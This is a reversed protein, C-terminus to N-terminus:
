VQGNDNERTAPLSFYFSAGENLRGVAWVRGNHRTVVRQVIALGVGTGPFDGSSHLRQFVGFLKHHYKMDFGVGNDEVCYECERGAATQYNRGTIRVRPTERRSSYKIANGVLNVWVQRLLNRDGSVPPLPGFEVGLVAPDKGPFLGALADRVLLDMDVPAASVPQQGLRSFALLDDILQAMQAANERVVGLMRKGEADIREAYDEELMRSFGDIARLPSRLDHSVSYSFSELERNTVELQATRRRLEETLKREEAEARKRETIDESIGLLYRPRGTEDVIPLKKTHLLRAGKDRTMVSEEPIDVVVGNALVERDRATFAEAEGTPFFDYDNCGILQGRPYGLLEEGARNFRVFRLDAADKVFIMDPINEIVSDLFLNSERLLQEARKRGTIDFLTSRSIIRDGGSNRVIAANISAMFRTGDKRVYEYEVDQVHGLRKMPSGPDRQLAVLRAASEPTMVDQHHLKGVVEERTYGFWSLWTDNVRLLLGDPGVSHYACPANNYLESVEEANRQAAHQARRRRAVEGRLLVFIIAIVLLAAANGIVIVEKARIANRGVAEARRALRAEEDSIIAAVLARSRDMLTKGEDLSPRIDRVPANSRKMRIGRELSQMRQAILEELDSLRVQQEGNDAAHTRVMDLLEPIRVLSAKYPELFTEDATILFGRQGTEADKLQSLIDELDSIEERTRDVRANAGIFDDLSRYSMVAIVLLLVMASVFGLTVERAGLQRGATLRSLWVVTRDSWTNM